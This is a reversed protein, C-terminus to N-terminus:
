QPKERECCAGESGLGVAHGGAHVEHIHVVEIHTLVRKIGIKIQPELPLALAVGHVDLKDVGDFFPAESGRRKMFFSQFFWVATEVVAHAGFATKVVGEVQASEREVLVFEVDADFIHIVRQVFEGELGCWSFRQEAWIKDNGSPANQASPYVGM